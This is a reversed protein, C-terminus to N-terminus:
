SFTVVVMCVQKFPMTAKLSPWDPFNIRFDEFAYKGVKCVLRATEGALVAVCLLCIHVCVCVCKCIYGVFLRPFIHSSLSRLCCCHDFALFFYVMIVVVVSFFTLSHNALLCLSSLLQPSFSISALM